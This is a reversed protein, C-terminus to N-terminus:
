QLCPSGRKSAQTKAFCTDYFSCAQGWADKGEAEENKIKVELVSSTELVETHSCFSVFISQTM